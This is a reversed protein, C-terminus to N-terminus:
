LIGFFSKKYEAACCLGRRAHLLKNVQGHFRKGMFEHVGRISLNEV